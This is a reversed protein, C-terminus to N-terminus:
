ASSPMRSGRQDRPSPSTYLLCIDTYTDGGELRYQISTWPANVGTITLEGVGGNVFVNSCYDIDPNTVLNSNTASVSLEVFLENYDLIPNSKSFGVFSILSLGFLLITFRLKNM